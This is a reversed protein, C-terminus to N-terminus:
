GYRLGCKSAKAVPDVAQNQTEMYTRLVTNIRSQYGQGLLQFWNVVEADVGIAITKEPKPWRITAQAFWDEDLLPIDSTDIEEDTLNNVYEWDTLSQDIISNKNM